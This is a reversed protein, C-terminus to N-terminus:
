AGYFFEVLGWGRGGMATRFTAICEHTIGATPKNSHLSPNYILPSNKSDITASVEFIQGGATFHIEYHEAIVHDEALNCLHAGSWEIGAKKGDPFFVYGVILHRTTKYLSVINLHVSMGNEFQMLFMIYRYFDMWNRVGYSHSRIGSFSMRSKEDGSISVEALLNGWQEYRHHEDKSKKVATLFDRTLPEMAMAEAATGPHFDYDFDFVETTASWVITFKVHVSQGGGEGVHQFPGKRLQGDFSIRWKQYPQICTMTLGGASWSNNAESALLTIPHEPHHGRREPSDGSGQITAAM